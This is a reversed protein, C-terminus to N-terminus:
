AGMHLCLEVVPDVLDLDLDMTVAGWLESHKFQKSTGSTAGFSELGQSGAAYRSQLAQLQLVSGSWAPGLKRCRCDSSELQGIALDGWSLTSSIFSQM